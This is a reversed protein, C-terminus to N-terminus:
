REIPVNLEIETTESSINVTYFKANFHNESISSATKKLNRNMSEVFIERFSYFIRTKYISCNSIVRTRSLINCRCRVRYAFIPEYAHAFKMRFNHSAFIEGRFIIKPGGLQRIANHQRRAHACSPYSIFRFFECRRGGRIVYYGSKHRRRRTQRPRFIAPSLYTHPPPTSAPPVWKIANDRFTSPNQDAFRTLM